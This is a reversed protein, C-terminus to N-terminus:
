EVYNTNWALNLGPCGYHSATPDAVLGHRKNGLSDSKVRQLGTTVIHVVQKLM